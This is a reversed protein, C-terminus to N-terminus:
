KPQWRGVSRENSKRAPYYKWIMRFIKMDDVFYRKCLRRPEQCFRYFWEFGMHQIWEPARKVTGALFDVTAGACITVIASTKEYNRYVWKEQKPCGFCVLLIDPKAKRIRENLRELEEEDKEFGIPPSDFGAIKLGSWISKMRMVAKKTTEKMGGLLYVSYGKKAAEALLAPVLDSGSIKQKVPNQYFKAIWLLPKGDVLTLDACDAIEKLYSDTEMKVLVDVNVPVVYSVNRDRIRKMLENVTEEMTLNNVYTNLLTQKKM